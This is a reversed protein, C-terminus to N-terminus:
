ITDMTEYKYEEKTEKTHTVKLFSEKVTPSSPKNKYNKKITRGKARHIYEENDNVNKEDNKEMGFDGNLEDGSDPDYM